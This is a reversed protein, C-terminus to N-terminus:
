KLFEAFLERNIKQYHKCFCIGKDLSIAVFFSLVKGAYGIKDDKIHLWKASM